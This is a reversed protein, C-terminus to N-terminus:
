AMFPFLPFRFAIIVSLTCDSFAVYWSELCLQGKFLVPTIPEWRGSLWFNTYTYLEQSKEMDESGCVRISGIYIKYHLVTTNVIPFFFSAKHLHVNATEHQELTLQICCELFPLVLLCYFSWHNSLSMPYTPFFQLFM